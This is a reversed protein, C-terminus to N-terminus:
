SERKISGRLESKISIKPQEQVLIQDKISFIKMADRADRAHPSISNLIPEITKSNGAGANPSTNISCIFEERKQDIHDLVADISQYKDEVRFYDRPIRGLIGEISQTGSNQNQNSSNAKAQNIKDIFELEELIRPSRHFKIKEEEEEKDSIPSYLDFDDM